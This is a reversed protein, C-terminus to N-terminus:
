VFESTVDGGSAVVVFVGGGLGRCKARKGITLNRPISGNMAVLGGKTLSFKAMRYKACGSNAIKVFPFVGMTRSRTVCKNSCTSFSSLVLNECCTSKRSLFCMRSNSGM